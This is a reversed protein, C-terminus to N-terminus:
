AVAARVDSSKRCRPRARARWQQMDGLLSEFDQYAM